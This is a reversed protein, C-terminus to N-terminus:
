TLSQSNLLQVSVLYLSVTVGGERMTTKKIESERENERWSGREREGHKGERKGEM